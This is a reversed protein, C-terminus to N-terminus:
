KLKLPARQVEIKVWSWGHHSATRNVLIKGTDIATQIKPADNLYQVYVLITNPQKPVFSIAYDNKNEMTSHYSAELEVALWELRTPTYPVMGPETPHPAAHSHVQLAAVLSAAVVCIVVINRM